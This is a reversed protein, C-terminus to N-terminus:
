GRLAIGSAGGTGGSVHAPLLHSVLHRRNSCGRAHRRQGDHRGVQAKCPMHLRCLIRADWPGLDTSTCFHSHAHTHTHVMHHLMHDSPATDKKTDSEKITAMVMAYTSREMRMTRVSYAFAHSTPAASTTQTHKHTHASHKRALSPCMVRSLYVWSSGVEHYAPMAVMECVICAIGGQRMYWRSIGISSHVLACGRRVVVCAPVQLPCAGLSSGIGSDGECGHTDNRTQPRQCARFSM